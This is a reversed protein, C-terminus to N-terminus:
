HQASPVSDAAGAPVFCFGPDTQSLKKRECENPNNYVFGGGKHLTNKILKAIFFNLCCSFFLVLRLPFIGLSAVLIKM